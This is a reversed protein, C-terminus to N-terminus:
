HKLLHKKLIDDWSGKFHILKGQFRDQGKGSTNDDILYDGLLLSKDPIIILKEVAWMGLHKEVWARKETYCMPNHISPATAIWVDYRRSLVNFADIAGPMPDLNLFFGYAAQPFKMDSSYQELYAKSFDALVGDM